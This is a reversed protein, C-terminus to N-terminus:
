RTPGVAPYAILPIQLELLGYPDVSFAPIGAQRAFGALASLKDEDTCGRGQELLAQDIECPDIWSSM